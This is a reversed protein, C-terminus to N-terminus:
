NLGARKETRGSERGPLFTEMFLLVFMVQMELWGVDEVLLRGAGFFIGRL